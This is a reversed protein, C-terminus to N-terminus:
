STRKYRRMVKTFIPLLLDKKINIFAEQNVLSQEKNAFAYRLQEEIMAGTGKREIARFINDLEEKSVKKWANELVDGFEVVDITGTKDKDALQFFKAAADQSSSKNVTNMTNELETLARAVRITILERIFSDLHVNNTNTPDCAKFFTLAEDESMIEKTATTWEAITLYKSNNKDIITFLDELNYNKKVIYQYIKKRIVALKAHM